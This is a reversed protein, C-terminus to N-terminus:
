EEGKEREAKKRRKAEQSAANAKLARARRQEPTMNQGSLKGFQGLQKFYERVEPPASAAAKSLYKRVQASAKVKNEM